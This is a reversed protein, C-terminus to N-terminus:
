IRRTKSTDHLVEVRDLTFSQGFPMRLAFGLYNERIGRGPRCRSQGTARLPFDYVWEGAAGYVALQADSAGKISVYVMDIRKKLTDDRLTAPLRIESTIPLGADTDGGLAFLGTAGGGHTPTIADFDHRTYETVAGLLTNCVITNM